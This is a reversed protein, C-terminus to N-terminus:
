GLQHKLKERAAIRVNFDNDENAIKELLKEDNFNPNLIAAKRIEFNEDDFASESLISNDKLNPNRLAECRVQWYIENCAIDELMEENIINKVAKCAVEYNTEHLIFDYLTAEDYVQGIAAIRSKKRLSRKALKILLNADDIYAIGDERALYISNPNTNKLQEYAKCRLHRVNDKNFIRVLVDEDNIHGIAEFRVLHHPDNLAVTTFVNENSLNPNKLCAIRVSEYADNLAVNELFSDDTLNPNKCALARINFDDHNKVIDKLISQDTENIIKEKSLKAHMKFEEHKIHKKIYKIQRGPCTTLPFIILNWKPSSKLQHPASDYIDPHFLVDFPSIPM